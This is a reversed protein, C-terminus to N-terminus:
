VFRQTITVAMVLCNVNLSCVVHIMSSTVYVPICDHFLPSNFSCLHLCCIIKLYPTFPLFRFKQIQPVNNYICMDPLNHYYINHNYM